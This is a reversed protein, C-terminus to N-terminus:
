QTPIILKMGVSIHNPDSIRERNADYISRWKSQDGGYFARAISYLTDKRKVTYVQGAARDGASAYTNDPDSDVTFTEVTTEQPYSDGPALSDYSGTMAPTQVDTQVKPQCGIVSAVLIAMACTISSRRTM